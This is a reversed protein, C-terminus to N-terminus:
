TWMFKKCFAVSRCAQATEIDRCLYRPGRTCPDKGLPTHEKVATCMGVRECAESGKIQNELVRRLKSGHVRTYVECKPIANPYHLCVSQLFSSTLYETSNLGLYLRGLVALTRCSQCDSPQPMEMKPTEEFLCLHLFACITHPAVSSLLFDVVEKGYKKVFEDCQDKYSGPLHDCVTEMAKVVADETREKPVLDELKKMLFICFTCQPSIEVESDKKTDVQAGPVNSGSNAHEHLRTQSIDACLGLVECIEGPKLHKILYQLVEPLYKQLQSVCSARADSGPLRMCLFRLTEFISEQTDNNSLMDISLELIKSCESCLDSTLSTKSIDWQNTAPDQIVMNNGLGFLATVFVLSYGFFMM